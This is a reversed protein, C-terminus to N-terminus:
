AAMQALLARAVTKGLATLTGGWVSRIEGGYQDASTGVTALGLNILKRATAPQSGQTSYVNHHDNQYSEVLLRAQAPTLQIDSM